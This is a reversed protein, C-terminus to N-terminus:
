DGQRALHHGRRIPHSVCKRASPPWVLFSWQNAWNSIPFYPTSCSTDRHFNPQSSASTNPIKKGLARGGGAWALSFASGNGRRADVVISSWVTHVYRVYQSYVSCLRLRTDPPIPLFPTPNGGGPPACPTQAVTEGAHGGSIWIRRPCPTTPSLDM